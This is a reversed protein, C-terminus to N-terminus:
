QGDRAHGHSPIKGRCVSERNYATVRPAPFDLLTPYEISEPGPTVADGFGVDVQVPIRARDLLALLHLRVGEYADDEKILEAWVEETPFVLADDEVPQLCVERFVEQLSMSRVTAMASFTWTAHPGIPSDRELGSFLLAGKLVFRDAYSSRSLRYLLREVAYRMLVFQFDERRQDARNKLRQRVSAALNTGRQNTM